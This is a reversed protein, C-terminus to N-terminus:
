PCVNFFWCPAHIPWPEYSFELTDGDTPFSLDRAGVDSLEGDVYIIWTVANLTEDPTECIDNDMVTICTVYDPFDPDTDYDDICDIDIAEDLVDFGDSGTPVSVDCDALPGVTVLDVDLHVTVNTAASPTTLGFVALGSITLLVLRRM